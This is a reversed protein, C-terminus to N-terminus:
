ILFKVLKMNARLLTFGNFRLPHLSPWLYKSIKLMPESIRFTPRFFTRKEDVNMAYKIAPASKRKDVRAYMHQVYEIWKQSIYLRTKNNKKERKNEREREGKWEERMKEWKVVYYIIPWKQKM